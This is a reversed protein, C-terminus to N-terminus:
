TAKCAYFVDRDYRALSLWRGCSLAGEAASKSGRGDIYQAFEGNGQYTLRRYTNAAMELTRQDFGYGNEYALVMFDANIAAHSFDEAPWGPAYGWLVTGQAPDKKLHSEFYRVIKRIKDSYKTARLPDHKSAVRQIRIMARGLITGQNFPLITLSHHAGPTFFYFEKGDGVPKWDSDFEDVLRQASQYLNEAMRKRSSDACLIPNSLVIDAYLAFVEAIMGNHAAFVHWQGDTYKSSGWGYVVRKRLAD